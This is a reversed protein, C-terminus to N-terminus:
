SQEHPPSLYVATTTCAYYRLGGEHRGWTASYILTARHIGMLSREWGNCRITKEKGVICDFMKLGESSMKVGFQKVWERTEDPMNQIGPGALVFKTM